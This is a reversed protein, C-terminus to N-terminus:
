KKLKSLEQMVRNILEDNGDKKKILIVKDPPVVLENTYLIVKDEPYNKAISQSYRLGDKSSLPMGAFSPLKSDLIWIYATHNTSLLDILSNVNSLPFYSIEKDNVKKTEFTKKLENTLLRDSDVHIIDYTKVPDYNSTLYRLLSKTTM